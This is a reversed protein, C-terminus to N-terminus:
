AGVNMRGFRLAPLRLSLPVIGFEGGFIQANGDRDVLVAAYIEKDWV